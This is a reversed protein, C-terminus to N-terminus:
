PESVSQKIREQYEQPVRKMAREMRSRLRERPAILWAAADEGAMFAGRYLALMRQALKEAAAADTTAEIEGALADFGWADV